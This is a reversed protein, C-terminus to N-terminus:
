AIPIVARFITGTADTSLIVLSGGHALAVRRAIALGLGTGGLGASGTQVFRDFIRERDAASVGPGRDAVDIRCTKDDVLLLVSVVDGDPTHAIANELLNGVLQRLLEEDASIHLDEGATLDIRIRRSSALVRYARVCDSVLEEVYFDTKRLPWREADSRALVLMDAIIRGARKLQGTVMELTERYESTARAPVSLAADAASRAISIPTRLEHSADALFRRRADIAYELRDLLGNFTDALRGLEDPTGVTFRTGSSRETMRRAQTAMLAAPKLAHGAVLWAVVAAVAIALPWIIALAALVTARDRELEAQPALAVVAYGAPVTGERLAVLRWLGDPMRVTAAGRATRIAAPLESETRVWREGLTTGDHWLIVLGRGAARVENLADAAAAAPSLGEALENVLVSAVTAALRGLEEDLRAKGIRTHLLLFGSGVAGLLMAMALAYAMTLRWRISINM